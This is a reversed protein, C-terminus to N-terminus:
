QFAAVGTISWAGDAAKTLDVEWLPLSGSITIAVTADTDSVETRDAEICLDGPQVDPGDCTGPVIQLETSIGEINGAAVDANIVAIIDAPVEVDTASETPAPQTATPDEAPAETAVPESATPTADEDGGDGNCAFLLVALLPAVLTM